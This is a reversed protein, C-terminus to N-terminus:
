LTLHAGLLSLCPSSAEFHRKLLIAVRNEFNYTKRNGVFKFFIDNRVFACELYLLKSEGMFKETLRPPSTLFAGFVHGGAAEVLMVVPGEYGAMTRYANSLSYGDDRTSFRLRWDLGVVTAAPLRAAVRLRDGEGLIASEGIQRSCNDLDVSTFTEHM